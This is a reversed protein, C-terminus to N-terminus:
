WLYLLPILLLMHLLRHKRLFGMIVYWAQEHAVLIPPVPTKNDPDMLRVCDSAIVYL